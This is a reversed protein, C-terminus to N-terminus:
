GGLVLVSGVFGDAAGMNSGLELRSKTQTSARFYEPLTKSKTTSTFLFLALPIFLFGM